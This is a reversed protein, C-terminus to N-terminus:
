WSSSLEGRAMTGVRVEVIYKSPDTPVSATPVPSLSVVTVRTSGFELITPELMTNITVQVSQRPMTFRVSFLVAANGAWVCVVDAPCRSDQGVGVFVLRAGRELPVADGIRLLTGGAQPEPTNPVQCALAFALLGFLRYRTM